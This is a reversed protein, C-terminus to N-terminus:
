RRRGDRSPLTWPFKVRSESNRWNKDYRQRLPCQQCNHKKEMNM